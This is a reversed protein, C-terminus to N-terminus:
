SVTLNQLLLLSFVRHKGLGCENLIQIVPLVGYYTQIFDLNIIPQRVKFFIRIVKPEVQLLMFHFLIKGMLFTFYNQLTKFDFFNYLILFQDM